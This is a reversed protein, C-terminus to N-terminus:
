TRVRWPYGGYNYSDRVASNYKGDVQKATKIQVRSKHRSKLLKKAERIAQLYEAKLRDCDDGTADGDIKKKIIMECALGYVYCSQITSLMFPESSGTSLATPAANYFMTIIDGSVPNPTFAIVNGNGFDTDNIGYMISYHNINGNTDGSFYDAPSITTETVVGVYVSGQCDLSKTQEIEISREKTGTRRIGNVNVEKDKDITVFDDPLEYYELGQADTYLIDTVGTWTKIKKEFGLALAVKDAVLGFWDILETETFYGATPEHLYSRAIRFIADRNMAPM